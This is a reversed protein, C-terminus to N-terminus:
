TLDKIKFGLAKYKAIDRASLEVDIYSKKAQNVLGGKQAYPLEEANDENKSINNLMWLIQEDTYVDKLQQLADFGENEGTEFKTKLLKKYTDPTVKETFPDYLHQLKAEMRIDNVRSRTETDRGVYDIWEQQTKLYGKNGEINNILADRDDVSLNKFGPSTMFSKPKFKTIATRDKYPILRNNTNDRPRDISHSIEHPFLGRVKYGLPTVTIDGTRGNSWGGSTEMEDIPQTRLITPTVLSTLNFSRNDSFFSADEGPRMSNNLMSKYMPSRHYDEYYKTAKDFDSELKKKTAKFKNDENIEAFTRNDPIEKVVKTNDAVQPKNSAMIDYRSSQNPNYGQLERVFKANKNLEKTRAEVNQSLPTWVGKVSVSWNGKSDKKYDRDGYSYEGGNDAKPLLGGQQKKPFISKGNKKFDEERVRADGEVGPKSYILDNAGVFGETSEQLKNRPIFQLNPDAKIMADTEAELETDRRNYYGAMAQDSAVTNNPRQGMIGSTSMGGALNQLHHFKEHELWWDNNEISGPRTDRNIKGTAANYGTNEDTEIVEPEQWEVCQGNYFVYGEPCNNNGGNQYSDIQPADEIVYGGNKFQEIQADDLYVDVFKIPITKTKRKNGAM